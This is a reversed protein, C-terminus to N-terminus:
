PMKMEVEVASELTVPGLLGSDLLAHGEKFEGRTIFTHRGTKQLWDKAPLGKGRAKWLTQFDMIWEDGILRNPWLNTVKVELRNRGPNLCDGVEVRFPPKWLIGLDRGNLVAEAIVEVRGLDLFTRPRARSGAREADKARAEWDRGLEFEKMYTATGSFYRVGKHEHETWSILGPLTVREPAGWGAPFTLEWAGELMLPAAPPPLTATLTEGKKMAVNFSGGRWGMLRLSGDAAVRVEVAPRAAAAVLVNKEISTEMGIRWPEGGNLVAAPKGEGQIAVCHNLEGVTQRLVVFVSGFPDLTLPVMIGGAVEKFVPAPEILGSDPRWLEPRKGRVRFTCERSESLFSQNLVFYIDMDGAARHIWMCGGHPDLPKGSKRGAPPKSQRQAPNIRAVQFDPGVSMERLQAQMTATGSDHALIRARGTGARDPSGQGAEPGWLEDAVRRVREDCEPYGELSPSRKPRSGIVKAGALVLERLKEAVAPTMTEEAPLVLLRYTMGGETVLCGDRVSMRRLLTERSCHDFEYGSPCGPRHYKTFTVGEGNYYCLDAVFRGQRLMHQCRALYRFWGAGQKWWTNGRYFASSYEFFMVGPRLTEAEPWPQHPFTHYFLKTIGECFAADAGPKFAFPHGRLNLDKTTFSEAGVVATGMVHAESSAQKLGGGGGIAGPGAQWGGSWFEGMPVDCGTEGSSYPDFPGGYPEVYLALGYRRCFARFYEFYNERLLDYMTRRYDWVFRVTLEASDVAKVPEVASVFGFRDLPSLIGIMWPLPNYGRRKRFEERFRPTWNHEGVEWSDILINTFSKYGKAQAEKILPELVGPFFADLAERSMKDVEREGRRSDQTGYGIRVVTWRGPPAEWTLRGDPTMKTSLDVIRERKVVPLPAKGKGASAEAVTAPTPYALVGIDRYFTMKPEALIEDLRAPGAVERESYTLNVKAHEPKIWKGHTGSWGEANHVGFELGLRDAEAISHLTHERWQPTSYDGGFQQVGGIGVAKMAELDATVGELTVINLESWKHWWTCPRASAPPDRFAEALEDAPRSAEGAWAIAFLHCALMLTTPPLFPLRLGDAAASADLVLTVRGNKTMTANM